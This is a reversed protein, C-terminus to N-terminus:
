GSCDASAVTRYTATAEELGQQLVKIRSAHAPHTSLFEPPQGGGTVTMNRGGPLAFANPSSEEFMVVEWAEPFDLDPYSVEAAAVVQQAVCQVLGNIAEDHAIPQNNLLHEFADEGMQAMMNHPVLALQSRGTPTEDCGALLVLQM